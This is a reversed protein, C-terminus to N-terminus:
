KKETQDDYVGHRAISLKDIVDAASQLTKKCCPHDDAAHRLGNSIDDTTTYKGLSLDLDRQMDQIGRTLVQYAIRQEALRPRQNEPNLAELAQEINM